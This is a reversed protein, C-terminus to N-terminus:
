HNSVPTLPTLRWVLRFEDNPTSRNEEFVKTGILFLQSTRTANNLSFGISARRQLDGDQKTNPDLHDYRTLLTLTRTWDWMVDFHGAAFKEKLKNEQVVEGLHAEILMKFDSPFWKLSLSGMRWKAEKSVDVNGLTSSSTSTAVSETSGTQGSVSTRFKDRDQWGWKATYWTRSDEPTSAEGNHVMVSTFFGNHLIYYSAGIDRLALVRESFWLSRPFYLESENMAGEEGYDVPMLGMRFRGYPSQWEGYAEIIGWEEQPRAKYFQQRNLLDLSGLKIKASLAADLRWGVGLQSGGWDFGGESGEQIRFHPQLLLDSVALTGISENLSFSSSSFFVLGILLYIFNFQRICTKM